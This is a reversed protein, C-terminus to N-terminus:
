FSTGTPMNRFARNSWHNKYIISVTGGVPLMHWVVITNLPCECESWPFHGSNLMSEHAVNQGGMNQHSKGNPVALIGKM